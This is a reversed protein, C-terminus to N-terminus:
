FEFSNFIFEFDKKGKKVLIFEIKDLKIFEIDEKEKLLVNNVKIGNNKILKRLEGRSEIGFLKKDVIFDFISIDEEKDFLRKIIENPKLLGLVFLSELLAESDNFIISNCREYTMVCLEAINKM